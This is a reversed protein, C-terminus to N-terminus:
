RETRRLWADPWHAVNKDLLSKNFPWPPQEVEFEPHVSAFELAAASPNDEKLAPGGRPVDHVWQM